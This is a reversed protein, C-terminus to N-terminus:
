QRYDSENTSSKFQTSEKVGDTAAMEMNVHLERQMDHNMYTTTKQRQTPQVKADETAAMGMKEHLDRQMDHKMSEAAFVSTTASIMMVAALLVMARTRM